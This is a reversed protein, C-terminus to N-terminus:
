SENILSSEDLQLFSLLKIINEQHPANVPVALYPTAVSYLGSKQFPESTSLDIAIPIEKGESTKAYYLLNKKALMSIQEPSLLTSLDTFFDNTAYYDMLDSPAIMIDLEKVQVMAIIKQSSAVSMQDAAEIDIRYSSDITLVQKDPDISYFSELETQFAPEPSSVEGNLVAIQLVSERNAALLDKILFTGFIIVVVAILFPIKYYYWFYDLKGKLSMEAAKKQQEKIEDLIAM